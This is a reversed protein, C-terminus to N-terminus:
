VKTRKPNSTGHMYDRKRKTDKSFNALAFSRITYFHKVVEFKINCCEPMLISIHEVIKHKLQKLSVANRVIKKEFKMYLVDANYVLKFVDKNPYKLGGFTLNRIYQTHFPNSVLNSTLFRKCEECLTGKLLVNTTSGALHCLLDVDSSVIPTRSNPAAPVELATVFDEHNLDDPVPMDTAPLPLAAVKKTDSFYDVLFTDSDSAYNTNKLKSVFQSLTILKLAKKCDLASPTSEVRRRTQSYVNELADSAFRSFLIYIIESYTRFLEVSIDYLSLSSLIMGCNLPKWEDYGLEYRCSRGDIRIDQFIEIMELLIMEKYFTNGRTISTKSIRSSVLEFWVAIKSVFWATSRAEEELEGRDVATFLAAATHHSFFRVAPGVNM